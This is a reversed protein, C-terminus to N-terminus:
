AQGRATKHFFELEVERTLHFSVGRSEVASQVESLPLANLKLVRLLTAKPYPFKIRVFHTQGAATKGLLDAEAIERETDKVKAKARELAHEAEEVEKDSLQHDKLYEKRKELTAAASRVDAEQFRLLKELSDRYDRAAAILDAQARSYQEGITKSRSRKQAQIQASGLVFSALLVILLTRCVM